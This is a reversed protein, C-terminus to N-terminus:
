SNIIQCLKNYEVIISVQEEGGLILALKNDKYTFNYKNLVPSNKLSLFNELKRESPNKEILSHKTKTLLEQFLLNEIM